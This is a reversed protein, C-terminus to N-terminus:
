SVECPEWTATPAGGKCPDFLRKEDDRIDDILPGVTEEESFLIKIRTRSPHYSEVTKSEFEDVISKNGGCLDYDQDIYRDSSDMLNGFASVHMPRMTKGNDTYSGLVVTAAYAGLVSPRLGFGEQIAWEGM